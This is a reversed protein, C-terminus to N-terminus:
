LVDASPERKGISRAARRQTAPGRNSRSNRKKAIKSHHRELQEKVRRLIEAAAVRTVPTVLLEMLGGLPIGAFSYEITLVVRTGGPVTTLDYAGSNEFGRISRWALRAPRRFETIKSDWDLTFGHVRALWRYTRYGIKEVKKLSDAYLPFEEVRSILGFVAERKAAITVSESITAM